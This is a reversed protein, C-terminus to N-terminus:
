QLVARIGYSVNVEEMFPPKPYAGNEADGFFFVPLRVTPIVMNGLLIIIAWGNTPVFVSVRYDVCEKEHEDKLPSSSICSAFQGIRLIM